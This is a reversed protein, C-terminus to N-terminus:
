WSVHDPEISLGPERWIVSLSVSHGLGIAWLTVLANTATVGVQPSELSNAVTVM